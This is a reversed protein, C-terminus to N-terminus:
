CSHNQKQCFLRCLTGDCSQTGQVLICNIAGYIGSTCRKKHNKWLYYQGNTSQVVNKVCRQLLLMMQNAFIAGLMETAM